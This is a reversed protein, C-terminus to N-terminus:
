WHYTVGLNVFNLSQKEGALKSGTPLMNADLLPAGYWSAMFLFYDLGIVVSDSLHYYVAASVGTQSHIVSLNGNTKDVPLQDVIGVGYGAAVHWSGHVLAVQGNYGTFTRLQYTIGGPPAANTNNDETASSNQGAYGLGIGRGHFASVGLRLPGVELRAGGSFGWVSTSANSLVPNAPDTNDARIRSLPQYLGEVGIKLRASEGIPRDFTLAGEPRVFIAHSWDSSATVSPSFVIPDYLAAHLQLGGVSPTSYSFGASYGPFLVGTGIHGCAPGLGDTCPLGLGFGHGYAADISYSTRGLLGLMRGATASGWPGTATVFGERAEATVPAWKDRNLTEVTSWISVYAKITTTDSLNRKLGFGLVNPIMGSRVRIGVYKNQADQQFASRWGVDGIGSGSNGGMVIHMGGAGSPTPLPFDDGKGGSLFANVRGDFSFTWGDSEILTVEASAARSWFMSVALCLGFRVGNSKLKNLIKM